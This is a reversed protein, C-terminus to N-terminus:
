GKKDDPPDTRLTRSRTVERLEDWNIYTLGLSGEVPGNGFSPSDVIIKTTRLLWAEITPLDLPRECYLEIHFPVRFHRMPLHQHEGILLLQMEKCGENASEYVLADAPEPSWKEGTWYQCWQDTIRYRVIEPNQAYEAELRM